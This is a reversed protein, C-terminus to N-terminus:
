EDHEGRSPAAEPLAGEDGESFPLEESVVYRGDLWNDLDLLKCRASCFPKTANGPADPGTPLKRRCLPCRAM